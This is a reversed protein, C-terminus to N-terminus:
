KDYGLWERVLDRQEETLEMEFTTNWDPHNIPRVTVRSKKASLLSNINRRVAKLEKDRGLVGAGVLINVFSGTGFSKTDGNEM